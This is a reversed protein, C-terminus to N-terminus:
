LLLWTNSVSDQRGRHFRNVSAQKRIILQEVEESLQAATNDREQVTVSRWRLGTNEAERESLEGPSTLRVIQTM